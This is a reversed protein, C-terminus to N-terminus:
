LPWWGNQVQGSERLKRLHYYATAQSIRCELEIDFTKCGPHARIYQLIEAEDSRVNPGCRNGLCNSVYEQLRM